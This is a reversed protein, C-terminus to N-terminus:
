GHLQVQDPVWTHRGFVLLGAILLVTLIVLGFNGWWRADETLRYRFKLASMMLTQGPAARDAVRGVFIGGTAVGSPKARFASLRRLPPRRNDAGTCCRSPSCLWDMFRLRSWYPSFEPRILLFLHQCCVRGASGPSFRHEGLVRRYAAPWVQGRHLCRGCRVRHRRLVRQLSFGGRHARRAWGCRGIGAGMGTTWPIIRRVDVSSSPTVGATGLGTRQVSQIATRGLRGLM